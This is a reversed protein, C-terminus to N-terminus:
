NLTEPQKKMTQSIQECNESYFHSQMIILIKTKLNFYSYKLFIDATTINKFM